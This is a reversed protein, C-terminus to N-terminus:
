FDTHLSRNLVCMGCVCMCLCVYGCCVCVCECCVCVVCTVCGCLKLESIYVSKQSRNGWVKGGGEGRLGRGDGRM